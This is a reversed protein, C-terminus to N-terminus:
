DSAVVYSNPEAPQHLLVAPRPLGADFGALMRFEVFLGRAKFALFGPVQPHELAVVNVEYGASSNKTVPQWVRNAPLWGMRDLNAVNLLPGRPSFRHGSDEFVNEASMIDYRDFYEGEQHDARLKRPSHDFSHELGFMHGTEHALWTLQVDRPQAALVSGAPVTAGTGGGAGVNVDFIVVVGVFQKFDFDHASIAAQVKEPHTPHAAQFAENTTDLTKWGFVQSGDLNIAGLSAAIWYDNLGGSGRKVFLDEYFARPNPERSSFKCLLIAIKQPGRLTM